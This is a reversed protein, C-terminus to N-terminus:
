EMFLAFLWVFMFAFLSLIFLLVAGVIAWGGLRLLFIGGTLLAVGIVASIILAELLDEQIGKKRAKEYLRRQLRKGARSRLFRRAKSMRRQRRRLKRAERRQIRKQRRIEQRSLAEQSQTPPADAWVLLPNLILLISWIVLPRTYTKM